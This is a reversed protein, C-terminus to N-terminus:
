PLLRIAYRATVGERHFMGTDENTNNTAIAIPPRSGPSDRTSSGEPGTTASARTRCEHRMDSDDDLPNQAGRTGDINGSSSVRNVNTFQAPGSTPNLTM